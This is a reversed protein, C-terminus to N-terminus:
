QQLGKMVAKLAVHHEPHSRNQSKLPTQDEFEQTGRRPRLSVLTKCGLLLQLSSTLDILNMKM